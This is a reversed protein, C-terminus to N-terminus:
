LGLQKNWVASHGFAFVLLVLTDANNLLAQSRLAPNDQLAQQIGASEKSDFIRKLVDAPVRKSATDALQVDAEGKAVRDAEGRESSKPNIRHGREYYVIDHTDLKLHSLEHGLTMGIVIPSQQLGFETMFVRKNPDSKNTFALEGQEKSRVVAFQEKNEGERYERAAVRLGEFRELLVPKLEQWSETSGLIRRPLATYEHSLNDSSVKNVAEDLAVRLFEHGLDFNSAQEPYSKRLETVGRAMVKGRSVRVAMESLDYKGKYKNLGTHHNLKG